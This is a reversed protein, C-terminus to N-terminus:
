TWYQNALDIYFNRLEQPLPLKDDLSLIRFGTALRRRISPLATLRKIPADKQTLRTAHAIIERARAVDSHRQRVRDRGAKAIDMLKPNSLAQKAISAALAANDRPYTLLHTGPTFLETLGNHAEETLLVAGCAMAQFIRFNLEEAASQNLVIRCRNFIPVYDGQKIVLPCHKKFQALFPARRINISGTVTGVFGVPIDRSIGQDADRTLNCFLPFWKAPRAPFEKAFGDVYDRQAVLVMDFASSYAQHWPNCYQDITYGIIVANLTELGLVQPPKCQDVWVVLDPKFQKSTLIHQLRKLSMPEDLRVTCHPSTGISLVDHGLQKFAPVFDLGDINLIRM